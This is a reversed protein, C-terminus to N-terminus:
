CYYKKGVYMNNHVNQLQNNNNYNYYYNIIYTFLVILQRSVRKPIPSKKEFLTM